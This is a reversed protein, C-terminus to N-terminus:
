DGIPPDEKLEPHREVYALWEADRKREYSSLVERDVTTLLSEPVEEVLLLVARVRCIIGSTFSVDADSLIVYDGEDPPASGPENVVEWVPRRTDESKFRPAGNFDTLYVPYGEHADVPWRKKRM